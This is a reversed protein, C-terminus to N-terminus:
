GGFWGEELTTVVCLAGGRGGVTFRGTGDAGPFALLPEAAAAPLMLVFLCLACLLAATKSLQTKM